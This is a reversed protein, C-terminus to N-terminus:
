TNKSDVFDGTAAIALEVGNLLADATLRRGIRGASRRLNEPGSTAFRL